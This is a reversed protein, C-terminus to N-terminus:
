GPSAKTLGRNSISSFRELRFDHVDRVYQKRARPLVAGLSGSSRLVRRCLWTPGRAAMAERTCFREDSRVSGFSRQSGKAQFAISWWQILTNLITFPPEDKEQKRAPRNAMRLGKGPRGWSLLLTAARCDAADSRTARKRGM